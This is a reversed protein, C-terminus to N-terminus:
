AMNDLLWAHVEPIHNVSLTLHGDDRLFRSEAHPINRALWQGHAFPVMLDQMGHMIMLPVRISAPDFGWPTTFALDDDIWGDPRDQVGRQMADILYAAVEETLAAVDPPSLLTQMAPVLTSPTAGLLGPIAAQIFKTLAPRGQLAAGFEALNDAGMGAMWDLGEAAHQAPSALSAAAAVLDPLLAACALAHPGGGSWGWVLLRRIGLHEAIEAVDAAVSAVTRGPHPTSEGYGPRDYTILRIGRAAADEVWAPHLTGAGPTGNHVLVPIGHRKGSELVYIQRGNRTTIFHTISDM